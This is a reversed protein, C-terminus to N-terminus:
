SRDIRFISSNLHPQMSQSSFSSSLLFSAVSVGIMGDSYGLSVEFYQKVIGEFGPGEIM